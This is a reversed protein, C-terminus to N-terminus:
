IRKYLGRGGWDLEIGKKKQLVNRVNRKWVDLNIDGNRFQGLQEQTLNPIVLRNALYVCFQNAAEEQPM